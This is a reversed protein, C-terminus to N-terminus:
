GCILYSLLGVQFTAVVRAVTLGWHPRTHYLHALIGLALITGLFKLGLFLAPDGNHLVILLKGLFNRELYLLDERHKMALFADYASVMGIMQWLVLFKPWNRQREATAVRDSSKDFVQADTWPESASNPPGSPELAVAGGTEQRGHMTAFMTWEQMKNFPVQRLAFRLFAFGLGTARHLASGIM